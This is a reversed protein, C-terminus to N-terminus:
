LKGKITTNESKKIELNYLSIAMLRLLPESFYYGDAKFQKVYALYEELASDNFLNTSSSDLQHILYDFNGKYFKRMHENSEEEFYEKFCNIETEINQRLLAELKPRDEKSIHLIKGHLKKAESVVKRLEQPGKFSMDCLKVFIYYWDTM